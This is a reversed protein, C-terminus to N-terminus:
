AEHFALIAQLSAIKKLESPISLFIKKNDQKTKTLPIGKRSLKLVYDRISSESLKLRSALLAYDVTNGEEELQYLTAYICM